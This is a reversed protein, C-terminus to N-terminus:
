RSKRVHRTTDDGFFVSCSVMFNSEASYREVLTYYGEEETSGGRRWAPLGDDAMMILKDITTDSSLSIMVFFDPASKGPKILIDNSELIRRMEPENPVMDTFSVSAIQDVPYVNGNWVSISCAANESLSGGILADVSLLKCDIPANFRVWFATAGSDDPLTWMRSAIDNHFKMVVTTDILDVSYCLQIPVVPSDTLNGATDYARASIFHWGETLHKEVIEETETLAKITFEYPPKDDILVEDIVVPSGDISFVVERIAVNDVATAEVTFEDWVRSMPYPRVLEITPPVTDIGEADTGPPGVPGQCGISLLLTATMFWHFIGNMCLRYVKSQSDFM